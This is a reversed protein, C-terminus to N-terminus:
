IIVVVVIIYSNISRFLSIIVSKLSSAAPGKPTTRAPNLSGSNLCGALV